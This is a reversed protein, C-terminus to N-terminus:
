KYVQILGNIFKMKFPKIILGVRVEIETYYRKLCLQFQEPCIYVKLQKRSEMDSVVNVLLPLMRNSWTKGDLEKFVM